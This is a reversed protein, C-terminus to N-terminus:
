KNHDQNEFPWEKGGRTANITAQFHEEMLRGIRDKNYASLVKLRAANGYRWRLKEDNLLQIVAGAMKRIRHPSVLIGAGNSLIDKMGGRDSGIVARGASMAELCVLGFCEWLSPFICVAAIELQDLVAEYELAGSLEYNSEYGKLQKQIFDSMNMKGVAYYSDNGILRFVVEPHEKVVLPIVKVLNVIGKHVNLKGIFTVVKKVPAIVPIKLLRAPPCYPNPIVAIRQGPLHWEDAIIAKQAVSPAVISDAMKTFKYEGDYNYTYAGYINIKGRRLGGLFYRLRTIRKTYFNLLRMQIFSAMHLKVVLPLFPYKEKILLGNAHIEPSEIIDFPLYEHRESFKNLCAKGFGAMDNILCRHVLIGDKKESISRTYSGCFIEVGNGREWLIQSAQEVYTAIGGKPIDPPYEYTIFAIRM